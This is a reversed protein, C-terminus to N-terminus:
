LNQGNLLIFAEHELVRNHLILGNSKWVQGHKEDDRRDCSLPLSNERQQNKQLLTDHWLYWQAVLCLGDDLSVSKLLTGGCTWNPLNKCYPDSQNTVKRTESPVACCESLRCLRFWKANVFVKQWYIHTNYEPYINSTRVLRNRYVDVAKTDSTLTPFWNCHFLGWYCQLDM